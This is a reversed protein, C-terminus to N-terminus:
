LRRRGPPVAHASSWTGNGNEPAAERGSSAGDGGGGLLAAAIQDLGATGGEPIAVTEVTGDEGRVVLPLDVLRVVDAACVSSSRSSM